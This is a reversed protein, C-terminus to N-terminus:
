IMGEGKFSLTLTLTFDRADAGNSLSMTFRDFWAGVRVMGRLSLSSSRSGPLARGDLKFLYTSELLM